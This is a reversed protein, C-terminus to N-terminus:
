LVRRLNDSLDKKSRYIEQRINKLEEELEKVASPNNDKLENIKNILKAETTQLYTIYSDFYGEVVVSTDQSVKSYCLECSNNPVQPTPKSICGVFLAVSACVFLLRKM